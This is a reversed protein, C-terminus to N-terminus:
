LAYPPQNWTDSLAILSHLFAMFTMLANIYGAPRPGTRRIFGPSWPLALGAGILAYCPILWVTQSLFDLM